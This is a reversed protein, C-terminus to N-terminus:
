VLKGFANDIYEGTLASTEFLLCENEQAYSSATLFEVERENMVARDKKNGLIVCSAEPRSNARAENLWEQLHSFSDMNTIDYCLIVGISGRFYSRTVSRYREQGATDWIQLKVTKDGEKLYKQGFEVGVTHKQDRNFSNKLYQNIICSKGVSSDGIVILKLLLDYKEKLEIEM